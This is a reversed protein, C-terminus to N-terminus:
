QVNGSEIGEEGYIFKKLAFANVDLDIKTVLMERIMADSYSGKIPIRFNEIGKSIGIDLIMNIYNEIEEASLDTTVYPLCKGALGVLGFYNMESVSKYLTGIVRRQRSTRGFDSYENELTAVNRVRCYGLAQNGNFHNMGATVNRYAPNSIYNTTNLYKAEAETLEVDVGGVADVIAEFGDFNVLVYNDIDIGLNMKLTDYLMSVGGIAYAANIRNDSYGPISVLCDRMISTLKVTGQVKNVSAIMILDSRGRYGGTDISEEGIILVNYVTKEIVPQDSDDESEPNPTTEPEPTVVSHDDPIIEIDTQQREENSDDVEDPVDITDVPAVPQYTVQEAAYKSGMKVVAGRGSKTCIIWVATLLIVLVVGAVTYGWWPIRAFFGLPRNDDEEGAGDDLQPHPGIGSYDQEGAGDITIFSSEIDADVQQIISDGIEEVMRSDQEEHEMEELEASFDEEESEAFANDPKPIDQQTAAPGADATEAIEPEAIEPEAIEPEAIEPEADGTEETKSEITEPETNKQGAVKMDLDEEIPSDVDPKIEFIEDSNNNQKM